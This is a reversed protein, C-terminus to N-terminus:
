KLGSKGEYEERSTGPWGQIETGPGFAEILIHCCQYQYSYCYYYWDDNGFGGLKIIEVYEKHRPSTKALDESHRDMDCSDLFEITKALNLLSTTIVHNEFDVEIGFFTCVDPRESFYYFAANAPSEGDGEVADTFEDEFLGKYANVIEDTTFTRPQDLKQPSECWIRYM